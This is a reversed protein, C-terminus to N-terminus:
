RFCHPRVRNLDDCNDAIMIRNWWENFNTKAEEFWKIGEEYHDLEKKENVESIDGASGVATAAISPLVTYFLAIARM